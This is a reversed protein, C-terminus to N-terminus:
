LECVSVCVRAQEVENYAVILTLTRQKLRLKPGPGDGECRVWLEVNIGDKERLRELLEEKLGRVM